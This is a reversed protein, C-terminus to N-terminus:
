GRRMAVLLGDDVPVSLCAYGSGPDTLRKVLPGLDAHFLGVDDMVVLAGPRLHPEVRELVDEAVDPFGDLLLLDVPGPLEALTERADGERVDVWADLGAEALHSRAAAAKAPVLETGIVQGAGNDRVAAALYLTSLGMSTGFEVICRAGTARALLYLLGGCHPGVPILKDDFGNRAASGFRIGRGLLLRPLQAAYM